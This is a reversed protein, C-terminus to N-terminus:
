TKAKEKLVLTELRWQDKVPILLSSSLRIPDIEEQFDVIYPNLGSVHLRQVAVACADSIRGAILLQLIRSERKIKVDRIKFPSHLLKLVCWSRSLPHDSLPSKWRSLMSRYMPKKWNILTFGWLLDEIKNDDCEGWVFPMVDHPSLSLHAEVPVCQASRREADMLRRSLARVLKHPLTNGYWQRDGREQSWRWPNNPDVEAMNSRLAGVSGTARISALSAAIRVELSNDDCFDIWRPSLGMLPRAIGPRKSRDRMAILEELRGLTRVLRCFNDPGPDQCCQFIAENITQWASQFTAPVVKFSRFFQTVTRTIPDLENLIELKPKYSTKIRGAPLAVFSKGRRELFAYREFSEIGRDVGLTGVARSFELGDRALKRGISSRGEGFLYKLEASNAPHRWVPLWLEQRAKENSAGSSFGVASFRVSFPAAFRSREDTANRRVVASAMFLAGEMALVFDWPNIKFEKTEIAMGQNYGGARGPDYQGIKANVLGSTTTSFAATSFLSQTKEEDGTLFLEALRQMFNNSFEFRGENGGTGLLPNFLGKGDKQLACVADLWQVCSEPLRARCRPLIRQKNESRIIENCKSRAKKISNWWTKWLDADPHDNQKSTTEIEDLTLNQFESTDITPPTAYLENVHNKLIEVKKGPTAQKQLLQLMQFIDEVTEFAPIEPWSRIESIVNRYETFRENNSALIAEIADAFDGLYFGSGGNWPAVLPTPAYEKCFFDEMEGQDLYTSISFTEGQWWGKVQRDKQESIIRLIGIAKLYNSLPKTRCGRLIHKNM